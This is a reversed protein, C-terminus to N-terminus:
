PIVDLLAGGQQIQREGVVDGMADGGELGDGILEVEGRWRRRSDSGRTGVRRPGPLAWRQCPAGNKRFSPRAPGDLPM